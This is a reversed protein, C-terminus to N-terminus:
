FSWAFQGGYSNSAYDLNSSMQQYKLGGSWRVGQYDLKVTYVDTAMQDKRFRAPQDEKEVILGYGVSGVLDYTLYRAYSAEAGSLDFYGRDDQLQDQRSEQRRMAQLHIFDRESVAYASRVTVGTSSPRDSRQSLDLQLKARLRDTMVQEASLVYTRFDLLTPRQRREGSRVDTFYSLPQEMKGTGIGWRVETLQHNLQTTQTLQYFRSPFPTQNLSSDVSFNVSLNQYMLDAAVTGQSELQDFTSGLQKETGNREQLIYNSYDNKIQRYSATIQLGSSLRPSTLEVAYTQGTQNEAPKQDLSTQGSTQLTLTSVQVQTGAAVACLSFFFILASVSCLRQM